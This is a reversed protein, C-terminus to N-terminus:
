GQEERLGNIIEYTQMYVDIGQLEQAMLNRLRSYTTELHNLYIETSDLPIDAFEVLIDPSGLLGIEIISKLYKNIIINIAKEEETSHTKQKRYEIILNLNFLFETYAKKREERLHKRADEITKEKERREARQNTLVVAVLTIIGTILSSMLVPVFAIVPNPRLSEVLDAAIQGTLNIEM